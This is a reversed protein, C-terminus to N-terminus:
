CYLTHICRHKQTDTCSCPVSVSEQVDIERIVFVCVCERGAERCVYSM